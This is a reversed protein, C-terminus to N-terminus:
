GRSEMPDIVRTCVCGSGTRRVKAQQKSSVRIPFTARAAFPLPRVVWRPISM